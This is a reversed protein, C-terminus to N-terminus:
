QEKNRDLLKLRFLVSLCFFVLIIRRYFRRELIPRLAKLQQVVHFSSNLLNILYYTTSIIMSKM